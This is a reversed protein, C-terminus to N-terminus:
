VPDDGMGKGPFVPSSRIGRPRIKIMYRWRGDEFWFVPSMERNYKELTREIEESCKRNDEKEAEQLTQAAKVLDKNNMKPNM